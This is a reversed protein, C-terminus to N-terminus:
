WVICSDAMCIELIPTRPVKSANTTPWAIDWCGNGHHLGTIAIYCKQIKLCVFISM